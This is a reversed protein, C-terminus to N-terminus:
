ICDLARLEIEIHWGNGLSLFGRRQRYREDSFYRFHPVAFGNGDNFENNPEIGFILDFGIFEDYLDYKRRAEVTQSIGRITESDSIRVFFREEGNLEGTRQVELQILKLDEEIERFLDSLLEFNSESFVDSRLRRCHSGICGTLAVLCMIILTVAIFKKRFIQKEQKM